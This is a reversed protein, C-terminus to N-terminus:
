SFSPQGTPQFKVSATLAGDRPAKPKVGAVFAKFTWKASSPDPFSVRYYRVQRAIADAPLGASASQTPDTPLLNVEVSFEGLELTTPRKEAFAGPSQMHTVDAFKAMIEPLDGLDVVEAVPTFNTATAIDGRELLAGFGAVAQSEM